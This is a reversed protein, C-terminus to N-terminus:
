SVFIQAGIALLTLVINSSLLLFAGRIMYERREWKMIFTHVIKMDELLGPMRRGADGRVVDDLEDITDEIRELTAKVREFEEQEISM